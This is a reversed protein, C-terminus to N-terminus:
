SLLVRRGAGLIVKSGQQYLLRSVCLSSNKICKMTIGISLANRDVALKSFIFYITSGTHGM